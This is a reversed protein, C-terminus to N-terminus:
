HLVVPIVVAVVVTVEVYSSHAVIISGFFLIVIITIRTMFTHIITDFFSFNSKTNFSIYVYIYIYIYLYYNQKNFRFLTMTYMNKM